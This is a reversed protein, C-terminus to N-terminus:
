VANNSHRMDRLNRLSLIVLLECKTEGPSQEVHRKRKGIKVQIKGHYYVMVMLRVPKRLETFGELLDSFRLTAKLDGSM